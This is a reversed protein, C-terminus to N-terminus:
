ARGRCGGFPPRLRSTLTVLAVVCDNRVGCEASRVGCEFCRAYRLDIRVQYSRWAWLEGDPTSRYLHVFLIIMLTSRTGARAPPSQLHLGRIEDAPRGWM